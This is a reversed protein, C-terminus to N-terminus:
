LNLFCTSCISSPDSSSSSTPSLKSFKYRKKSQSVRRNIINGYVKNTSINILKTKKSFLRISELINITGLVNSNFDTRPDIVSKTVAVQGACHILLNPKIKKIINSTSSFNSVDVKYFTLKINKKLNSLNDKAGKRSLNDILYIKWGNKAFHLASNSGIFGAGGTIVIKKM